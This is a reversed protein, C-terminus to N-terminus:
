PKQEEVLVSVKLKYDIFDPNNASVPDGHARELLEASDGEEYTEYGTLEFEAAKQGVRGKIFFPNNQKEHAPQNVFADMLGLPDNQDGLTTIMLNRASRAIARQVPYSHNQLLPKVEVQGFWTVPGDVAGRNVIVPDFQPQSTGLTAMEHVDDASIVVTRGADLREYVDDVLDVEAGHSSFQVFDVDELFLEVTTPSHSEDNALDHNSNNSVGDFFWQFWRGNVAAKFRWEEKFTDHDITGKHLNLFKVTVKKVRAAQEGTPDRWGLSVIVGYFDGTLANLPITVKAQRKTPDGGDALPLLEVIPDADAASGKANAFRKKEFHKLLEPKRLMITNVGVDPTAGIPHPGK